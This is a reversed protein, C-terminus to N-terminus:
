WRPGLFAPLTKDMAHVVSKKGALITTHAQRRDVKVVADPHFRASLGANPNVIRRSRGEIIRENCLNTGHPCASHYNGTMRALITNTRNHKM